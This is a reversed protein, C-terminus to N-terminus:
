IVFLPINPLKQVVSKFQLFNSFRTTLRFKPQEILVWPKIVNVRLTDWIYEICYANIGYEKNHM